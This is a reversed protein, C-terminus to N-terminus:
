GSNWWTTSEHDRLWPRISALQEVTSRAQRYANGAPVQQDM